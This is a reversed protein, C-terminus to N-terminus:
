VGVQVDGEQAIRHMHECTCETMDLEKHSWPSHGALSRQGHFKGSNQFYQLPNGNGEGLSRGLGTNLGVDRAEEANAPLNKVM